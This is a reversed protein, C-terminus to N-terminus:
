KTVDNQKTLFKYIKECQNAMYDPDNVQKNMMNQVVLEVSLLRMLGEKDLGQELARDITHPDIVM